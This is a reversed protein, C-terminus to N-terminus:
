WLTSASSKRVRHGIQHDIRGEVYEWEECLVQRSVVERVAEDFADGNMEGCHHWIIHTTM